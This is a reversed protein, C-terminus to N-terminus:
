NDIAKKKDQEIKDKDVTINIHFNGKEDHTSFAWWGQYYGVGALIAFLVVLVGLFKLM